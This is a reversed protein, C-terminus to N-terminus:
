QYGLEKAKDYDTKAKDYDGKGRWALGRHYYAVADKPNLEIAKTLDAIAKDFNETFYWALGRHHYANANEPELEIVKTLDKIALDLNGLNGMDYYSIGRNGYAEAFQPDIEIAKTYESIALAYQGKQDYAVGQNYHKAARTDIVNGRSDEYYLEQACSSFFTLALLLVLIPM